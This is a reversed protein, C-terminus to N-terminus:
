GGEKLLLLQTSLIVYAAAMILMSLLFPTELKRRFYISDLLITLLPVSLSVLSSTLPNTIKLGVYGTYIALFILGAMFSIQFLLKTSLKREHKSGQERFVLWLLFSVVLIVVEQVTIELLIPIEDIFNYWHLVVSASFALTMGLFLFHIKLNKGLFFGKEYRHVYLGYGIGLLSLGPLYPWLKLNEYLILYILIFAIGVIGYISFQRLSGKKLGTVMLILGTAGLLAPLIIRISSDKLMSLYDPKVFLLLSLGAFTTLLARISIVLLHNAEKIVIKWFLNNIAYLM